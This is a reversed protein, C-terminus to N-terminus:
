KLEQDSRFNFRQSCMLIGVVSTVSIEMETPVNPFLKIIKLCKCAICHYFTWGRRNNICNDIYALYLDWAASNAPDLIKFRM